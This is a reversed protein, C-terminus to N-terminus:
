REDEPVEEGTTRDVGAEDLTRQRVNDGSAPNFVLQGQPRVGMSLPKSHSKPLDAGTVVEITVEHCLGDEDTMPEVEFTVNVKRKRAVGPRNSCDSIATKLAKDIHAAARGDDLEAIDQVKFQKLM